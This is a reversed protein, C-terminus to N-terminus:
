RDVELAQEQVQERSQERADLDVVELQGARARVSVNHGQEMAADLQERPLAQTIENLDYRVTEIGAGAESRVARTAQFVADDQIAVIKGDQRYGPPMPREVGDRTVTAQPATTRQGYESELPQAPSSSPAPIRVGYPNEPRQAPSPPSNAARL